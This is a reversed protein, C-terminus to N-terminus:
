AAKKMKVVVAPATNGLGRKLMKAADWFVKPNRNPGDNVTTIYGDIWKNKAFTVKKRLAARASALELKVQM